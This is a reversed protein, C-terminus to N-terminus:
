RTASPRWDLEEQLQRYAPHELPDLNRESLGLRSGRRLADLAASRNKAQHYALALHFYRNPTPRETIAEELDKVARGTDGITLYVVARTDLWQVLPGDLEIAREISPLAETGKRESLALVWAFNNLALTDNPSKALIRQYIALLGAYDRQLRRVAALQNLVAPDPTETRAAVELWDAVRRCQAATPSSAYLISLAAGHVQEPKCSARARECLDLAEDVRQQRGLFAALALPAEPKQAAQAYKRYMEEAERARGIKELLAAAPGIMKEQDKALALLETAAEEAQGQKGLLQARLGITRLNKPEMEELKALWPRAESLAEHSLLGAALTAVLDLYRARVSESDKKANHLSEGAASVLLLLHERAKSWEGVSDYLQSLLFREQPMLQQRRLLDELLAIAERRQRPNQARALIVIKARQDAASVSTEPTQQGKERELIGVIELARISEQYNGGSALILALVRRGEAVQAPATTKLGILQELYKRAKEPSKQRLHYYALKQLPSSDNPRAQRDAEYLELARASQGLVEYCVALAPLRERSLRAQAEQVTAEAKEKQGQQVLHLTLAIWCDAEEPALRVANQLTKEAEAPKGAARQLEGLWILDRFAKTDLAVSQEALQLARDPDQRSLALQAALRNLEGLNGGLDQLNRIMEDAEDVRGQNALLTALRRYTAPSQEGLQLALRYKAIAADSKGGLDLIQAQALPVRGWTTRRKAVATLQETAEALPTPDRQAEAQHILQTAKGFRWLTGEDGEIAKLEEIL